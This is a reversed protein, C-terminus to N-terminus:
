GVPAIGRAMVEGKVNLIIIIVVGYREVKRGDKGM